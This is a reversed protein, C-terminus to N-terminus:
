GTEEGYVAAKAWRARVAAGLAAHEPRALEPDADVLREAEARALDLLALTGELDGFMLAPAGAQRRGFLDGPGRQALDAEAIRFGDSTETLCRLRDIAAAPPAASSATAAPEGDSDNGPSVLLFCRGAHAGRGVRGRLQHLQALGFRDAEEILMVTANGVDIGLEVVTTAVLVDLAGDAFARLVADKELSKLAGHLLGVRAPTLRRVLARHQAVATVGGVRASHERAPCVVFAQRGAAVADALARYAGDRQDATACLVTAVPQRGPPRDSLVTADLDGYLTLALSRPIPTASMVLLHPAPGGGGRLRARQAVGFRHQEDVVVLRLDACDAGADLLAQTGVVLDIAGQGLNERLRQRDERATAATLLAVRLGFPQGLTTLTRRHQEALVETPVMFLTQGGGRAAAIAALLAVVTKGSGVDGIVLRQMPRPAALDAVIAAVAAQQGATLLFPLRDQGDALLSAADVACGRAPLSQASARNRRFGVQLILLEELALRRHAPSRGAAFDELEGPSLDTEPLHLARLAVALLPLGCSQRVGAPLVDDEDRDGLGAVAAAIMKELVRGGIGDVAPYRARIGPGGGGAVLSTLNTPHILEPKDEDTWRLPGALTVVSDKAFSKAMGGPPRFWRARLTAGDDDITVDLFRRPFIHVKRVVGRVVVLQGGLAAGLAAVKSQVRLDDYGRPLYRLLDGVTAIGAAALRALTKPGAGPLASLADGSGRRARSGNTPLVSSTIASTSSM